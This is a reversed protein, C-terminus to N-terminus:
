DANPVMCVYRRKRRSISFEESCWLPVNVTSELVCGLGECTRISPFNDVDTTIVFSGMGIQQFVPLCLRCAQLAYHRGQYPPDIHYGVHGLYYLSAGEGLRLALEGAIKGTAIDVIDFILCSADNLQFLKQYYERPLLAISENQYMWERKRGCRVFQKEIQRKM